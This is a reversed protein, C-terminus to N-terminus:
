PAADEERAMAHMMATIRAAQAGPQYWLLVLQDEPSIIVRPWRITRFVVLPQGDTDAYPPIAFPIPRWYRRSDSHDGENTANVAVESLYLGLVGQVFATSTSAPNQVAVQIKLEKLSLIKDSSGKISFVEVKGPTSRGQSTGQTYYHRWERAEHRPM